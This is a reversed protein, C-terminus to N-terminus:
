RGGRNDRSFTCTWLAQTIYDALSEQIPQTKARVVTKVGVGAARALSENTAGVEAMREKLKPILKKKYVKM